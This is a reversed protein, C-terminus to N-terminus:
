VGGGLPLLGARAGPLCLLAPRQHRRSRNYNTRPRRAENRLSRVQPVRRSNSHTGHAFQLRKANAAAHHINPTPRILFNHYDLNITHQPSLPIRVLNSSLIPACPVKADKPFLSLKVISRRVALEVFCLCHVCPWRLGRLCLVQSQARTTQCFENLSLPWM